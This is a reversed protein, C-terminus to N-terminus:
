RRSCVWPRAVGAAHLVPGVRAGNPTEGATLRRDIGAPGDDEWLVLSGIGPPEVRSSGNPIRGEPGGPCRRRSSRAGMWDIALARNSGTYPGCRVRSARRPQMVATAEYIREATQVSPLVGAIERRGSPSVARGAEVPGMATPLQAGDAALQDALARSGRRRM